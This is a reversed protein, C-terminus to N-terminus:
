SAMDAGQRMGALAAGHRGRRCTVDESENTKQPTFPFGSCAECGHSSSLCFSLANPCFLKNQAKCDAVTTEELPPACKLCPPAAPAGIGGVALAHLGCVEAVAVAVAVLLVPMLLALVAGGLRTSTRARKQARTKTRLAPPSAAPNDESAAARTWARQAHAHLLGKRPSSPSVPPSPESEPQTLEPASASRCLGDGYRRSVAAVSAGHMWSKNLRLAM